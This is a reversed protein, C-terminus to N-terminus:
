VTQQHLIIFKRTNSKLNTMKHPIHIFMQQKIATHFENNVLQIQYHIQQYIFVIQHVNEATTSRIQVVHRHIGIIKM